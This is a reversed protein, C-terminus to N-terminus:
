ACKRPTRLIDKVHSLILQRVFAAGRKPCGCIRAAAEIRDKEAETFSITYLRQGAAAIHDADNLAAGKIFSDAGDYGNIRAAKRIRDHQRKSLRITHIM